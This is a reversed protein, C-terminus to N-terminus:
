ETGGVFTIDSKVSQSIVTTANPLDNEEVKVRAAEQSFDLDLWRNMLRQRLVPKECQIMVSLDFYQKLSSWPMMNLLLYNGEVLIVEVSEPIERASARSLERERDFVPVLVDVAPTSTLRMLINNLGDVDFTQPAGKRPLLGRQQLISDDLHFGDMPVVQASLKYRGELEAQLLGSITTKGSGPPGAVAVMFRDNNKRASIAAALGEVTSIEGAALADGENHQM